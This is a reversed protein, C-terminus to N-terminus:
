YAIHFSKFEGTAPERRIEAADIYGDMASNIGALLSDLEAPAGEAVLEVNGNRLNKVFGTVAITQAIQRVSFRFGVGQVRGTYVVRRREPPQPSTSTSIPPM